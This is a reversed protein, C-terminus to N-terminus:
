TVGGRAWLRTGLETVGGYLADTLRTGVKEPPVATMPEVPTPLESMVADTTLPEEYGVGAKVAVLVYVSVTVLEVPATTEVVQM